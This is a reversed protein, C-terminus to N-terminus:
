TEELCVRLGEIGISGVNKVGCEIKPDEYGYYYPKDAGCRILLRASTTSKEQEHADIVRQMQSQTFVSEKDISVFSARSSVNRSTVALIPFTYMYDADLTKNVKIIWFVAKTKKPELYINRLRPSIIEINETPALQIMESVYSDELNVVDARVLNYSGLGVSNYQMSVNISLQDKTKGFIHLLEGELKMTKAEAEVGRGQWVYVTAPEDSDLSEKLNIHSADVYGFQGYTVDWPIWGVGPFYVEAWGHGGWKEPFDPSDTYALGSVFRAPIGVSRVLAIFLSTLEDCVGQENRLVWSASQSAEITLTSLNYEINEKTWEAMKFVVVYMDDEGEALKSAVLVIDDDESNINRTPRTFLLIEPPLNVIPFGIKKPVKVYTNYVRVRAGISYSLDDTKPQHWTFEYAEGKKTPIPLPDINLVKQRESDHPIVSVNAIALDLIADSREKIINIGSSLYVGVDVFESRYQWGGPEQAVCISSSLVLFLGILLLRDRVQM